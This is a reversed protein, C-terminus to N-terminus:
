ATSRIQFLYAFQKGLRRFGTDVDRYQQPGIWSALKAPSGVSCNSSGAGDADTRINGHFGMGEAIWGFADGVRTGRGSCLNVVGSANKALLIQVIQEAVDEIALFDRMDDPRWATVVRTKSLKNKMAAAIRTASDYAFSGPRQRIGFPNFLRVHVAAIGARDALLQVANGALVKSTGYAGAPKLQSSEPIPEPEARVGYEAASGISLFRRVTGAAAAAELLNLTAMTHVSYLYDASATKDVSGAAHVIATPKLQRVRERVSAADRLDLDQCNASRLPHYDLDREDLHRCIAHGIFGNTGTVLLTM